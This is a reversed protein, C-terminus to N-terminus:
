CAKNSIYDLFIDNFNLNECRGLLNPTNTTPFFHCLANLHGNFNSLSDYIFTIDNVYAKIQHLKHPLLKVAYNTIAQDSKRGSFLSWFLAKLLLLRICNVEVVYNHVM